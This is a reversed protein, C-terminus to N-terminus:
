AEVLIERILKATTPSGEDVLARVRKIGEQARPDKRMAEIDALSHWPGFSCFENPTTNSQVLRGWLPPQPLSTFIEALDKWATIFETERGPKVRWLAYTFYSEDM